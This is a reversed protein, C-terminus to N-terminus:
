TDNHYSTKVWGSDKDIVPAQSAQPFNGIDENSTVPGTRMRLDPETSTVTDSSESSSTGAQDEKTSLWSGVWGKAGSGLQI